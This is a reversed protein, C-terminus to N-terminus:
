SAPEHCSVYEIARVYPHRYCSNPDQCSTLTTRLIEHAKECAMQDGYRLIVHWDFDSVVEDPLVEKKIESLANSRWRFDSAEWHMRLLHSPLRPVTRPKVRTTDWPDWGCQRGSTHRMHMAHVASSAVGSDAWLITYVGHADPGEKVKADFWCDHLSPNCPERLGFVDSQEIEGAFYAHVQEGPKCLIDAPSATWGRALCLCQLARAVTM